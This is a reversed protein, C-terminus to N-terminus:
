LASSNVAKAGSNDINKENEVNNIWATSLFFKRKEQPYSIRTLRCDRILWARNNQRIFCFVNAKPFFGFRPRLSSVSSSWIPGMVKSM